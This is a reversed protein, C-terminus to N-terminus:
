KKRQNQKKPKPKEELEKEKKIPAVEILKVFPRQLVNNGLLYEAMIQDCEFTDGVFLKGEVNKNVRKVNKLEGFKSLNFEEIVECKIM